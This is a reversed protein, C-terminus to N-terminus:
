CFCRHLVRDLVSSHLVNQCVDKKLSGGLRKDISTRLLQHQWVQSRQELRFNMKFTFIM